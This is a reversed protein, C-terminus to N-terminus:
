LYENEIEKDNITEQGTQILEVDYGRREMEEEFKGIEKLTLLWEEDRHALLEDVGAEGDGVEYWEYTIEAEEECGLDICLGICEDHDPVHGFVENYLYGDIEVFVMTESM